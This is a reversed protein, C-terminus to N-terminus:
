RAIAPLSGCMGPCPVDGPGVSVRGAGSRNAVEEVHHAGALTGIEDGFDLLAGDGGGEDV